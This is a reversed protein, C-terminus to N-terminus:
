NTNVGFGLIMNVEVAQTGRFAPTFKWGPLAALIKSQFDAAESKVVRPNQIVGNRDLVCRIVLHSRQVDSPLEARMPTPATLDEAYSQTASAADAFQMVVTGVTSPIYITYVRDGKLAGYFNM